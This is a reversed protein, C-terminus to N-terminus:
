RRDLHACGGDCQTCVPIGKDIRLEVFYTSQSDSALIDLLLFVDKFRRIKISQEDHRGMDFPDFRRANFLVGYHKISKTPWKSFIRASDINGKIFGIWRITPFKSEASLSDASYLLSTLAFMMIFQKIIM